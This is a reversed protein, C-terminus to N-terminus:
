RREPQNDWEEFVAPHNENLWQAMDSYIESIMDAEHRIQDVADQLHTVLFTIEQVGSPKTSLWEVNKSAWHIWASLALQPNPNALWNSIRNCTPVVGATKMIECQDIIAQFKNETQHEAM